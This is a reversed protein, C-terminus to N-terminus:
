GFAGARDALAGVGDNQRAIRVHRSRRSEVLRLAALHQLLRRDDVVVRRLGGENPLRACRLRSFRRLVTDLDGGLPEVPRPRERKKGVSAHEHALALAPQPDDLAVALEACRDRFTQREIEAFARLLQEVRHGIAVERAIARDVEEVALRRGLGFVDAFAFLIERDM